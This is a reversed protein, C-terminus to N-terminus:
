GAGNNRTVNAGGDDFGAPAYIGHGGNNNAVNGRLYADAAHITFGNGTNRNAVNNVLQTGTADAGVHFGEGNLLAQNHEATNDRAGAFLAMGWFRSGTITSSVLLNEHAGNSVTLGYVNDTLRNARVVAHHTGPGDVRIGDLWSSSVSNGQLLAYSANALAIGRTNRDFAVDTVAGGSNSDLVVGESFEQVLGPGTLTTGNVGPWVRVGAGQGSSATPNDGDITFGNLDLTIGAAALVLGDGPCDLLDHQLVTSTTLVAGCTLDDAAAPPSSAIGAVVFALTTVAVAPGSRM